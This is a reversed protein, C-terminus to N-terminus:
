PKPEKPLLAGMCFCALERISDVQFVKEQNHYIDAKEGPKLDIWIDPRDREMTGLMQILNM